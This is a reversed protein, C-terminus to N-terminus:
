YKKTLLLKIFSCSRTRLSLSLTHILVLWKVRINMTWKDSHFFHAGELYKNYRTILKETDTENNSFNQFAVVDLLEFKDVVKSLREMFQFDAFDLQIKENYGGANEYAKLSVCLGSNILLYKSLPYIGPKCESGRIVTNKWESPSFPINGNIRVIPACVDEVCKEMKEMMEMPFLTDQDLLLLKDYGHRKAYEAATNYAISLGENNINRIYIANSPIEEKHQIYTEPSNDYIMFPRNFKALFSKYCESDSITTKYIVIVPFIM